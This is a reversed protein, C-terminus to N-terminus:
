KDIGSKVAGPALNDNRKSSVCECNLCIENSIGTGLISHINTQMSELNM